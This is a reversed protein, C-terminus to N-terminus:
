LNLRHPDISWPEPHYYLVQSTFVRGWREHTVEEIRQPNNLYPRVPLSRYGEAYGEREYGARKGGSRKSKIKCLKCDRLADTRVVWAPVIALTLHHQLRTLFEDANKAKGKGVSMHCAFVYALAPAHIRDKEMRFDYLVSKGSNKSNICVSKIEVPRDQPDKADPQYVDKGGTPLRTFGLLGCVVEEMIAGMFTRRHGAGKFKFEPPHDFLTQQTM